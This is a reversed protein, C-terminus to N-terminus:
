EGKYEKHEWQTPKGNIDVSTIKSEINLAGTMMLAKNLHGCSIMVSPEKGEEAVAPVYITTKQNEKVANEVLEGAVGGKASIKTLIEVMMPFGAEVMLRKFLLDMKEVTSMEEDYSSYVMEKGAPFDPFGNELLKAYLTDCSTLENILQDEHTGALETAYHLFPFLQSLDIDAYDKKGNHYIRVLEPHDLFSITKIEVGSLREDESFDGVGNKRDDAWKQRCSGKATESM